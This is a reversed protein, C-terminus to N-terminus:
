RDTTQHNYEMQKQNDYQVLNATGITSRSITMCQNSNRQQKTTAVPQTTSYITADHSSKYYCNSTTLKQSNKCPLVKEDYNCDRQCELCLERGQLLGKQKNNESQHHDRHHDRQENQSEIQRQRNERENSKKNLKNIQEGEGDRIHM